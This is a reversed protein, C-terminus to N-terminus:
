FLIARQFIQGVFHSRITSFLLLGEPQCGGSRSVSFLSTVGARGWVPAASCFLSFTALGQWKMVTTLARSWHECLLKCGSSGGSFYM